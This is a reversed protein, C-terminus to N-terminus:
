NSNTTCTFDPKDLTGANSITAECTESGGPGEVTASIQTGGPATDLTASGNRDTSTVPTDNDTDLTVEVFDGTVSWTFTVTSSGQSVGSDEATLTDFTPPAAGGAGGDLQVNRTVVGNNGATAESVDVEVTESDFGDADVTVDYTGAPIGVLAYNGGADTTDSVGLSAIEVTAGQIANGESDTVTGEVNARVEVPLRDADDGAATFLRATGIGTGIGATAVGSGDTVVDDGPGPQPDAVAEDTSGFDVDAGVIPDSPAAADVVTVTGDIPVDGIEGKDVVLTDGDLSVGAQAAITGTDWRTDYTTSYNGGGAGANATRVSTLEDTGEGGDLGVRTVRLTYEGDQLEVRVYEDTTEVLAVGDLDDVAENWVASNRTPIQLVIDGGDPQIPVSATPGDLTEPDLTVARSSSRSLNGEFLVVDLRNSEPRILTQESVTLETDDFENYLLSHELVTNPADRYESYGPRYLVFDTGLDIGPDPGLLKGGPNGEFTGSVEANEIRFESESAETEITGSPAPPNLAILRAPFQTGLRLRVSRHDSVIVPDGNADFEVSRVDLLSNRLEQMDSQVEANHNFEVRANQDPVVAAQYTSFAIILIAFLLIAGVLTSQAREGDGPTM